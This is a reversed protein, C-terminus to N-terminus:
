THWPMHRASSHSTGRLSLRPAMMRRSSHPTSEMWGHAALLLLLLLIRACLLLLLPLLLLHWCRVGRCCCCHRRACRTSSGSGCCRWSRLLCIVISYRGSGTVIAHM